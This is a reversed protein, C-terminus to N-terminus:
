KFPYGIENTDIIKNSKELITIYNKILVSTCELRNYLDEPMQFRKCWSKLSDSFGEYKCRPSFIFVKFEKNYILYELWKFSGEIPKNKIILPDVWDDYEHIIGDFGVLIINTNSKTISKNIKKPKGFKDVLMQYAEDLQDPDLRKLIKYSSDLEINIGM